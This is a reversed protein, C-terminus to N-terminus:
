GKNHAASAKAPPMTIPSYAQRGATQHITAIATRKAQAAYRSRVRGQAAISSAAPSSNQAPAAATSSRVGTGSLYTLNDLKLSLLDFPFIQRRESDTRTQSDVEVALFGM